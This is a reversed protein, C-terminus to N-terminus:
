FKVYYGQILRLVRLVEDLPVLPNSCLYDYGEYRTDFNFEAMFCSDCESYEDPMYFGCKCQKHFRDTRKIKRETGKWKHLNVKKPEYISSKSKQKKRRQCKNATSM